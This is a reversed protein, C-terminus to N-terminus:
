NWGYFFFRNMLFFLIIYSDEEEEEMLTCVGSPANKWCFILIWIVPLVYNKIWNSIHPRNSKWKSATKVQPRNSQPRTSRPGIQSSITFVSLLVNFLLLLTDVLFFTPSSLHERLNLLEQKKYSAMKSKRWCSFERRFIVTSPVIELIVYSNQFTVEM